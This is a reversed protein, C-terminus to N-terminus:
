PARTELSQQYGSMLFEVQGNAVGVVERNNPEGGPPARSIPGDLYCLSAPTDPSMDPWLARHTANVSSDRITGVTSEYAAAVELEGGSQRAADACASTAGSCGTLIMAVSALLLSVGVLIRWRALGM